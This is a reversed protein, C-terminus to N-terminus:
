TRHGTEVQPVAASALVTCLSIGIVAGGARGLCQGPFKWQLSHFHIKSIYAVGRAQQSERLAARM